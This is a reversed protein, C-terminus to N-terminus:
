NLKIDKVLGGVYAQMAPDKELEKQLLKEAIEISIIGVQNKLDTIAAM